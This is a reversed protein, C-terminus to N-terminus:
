PVYCEIQANEVVAILVGEALGSSSYAQIVGVEGFNWTVKQM